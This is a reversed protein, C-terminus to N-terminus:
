SMSLFLMGKTKQQQMLKRLITELKMWTAEFFMPTHTDTHTHTHTKIVVCYEIINIYWIKNRSM